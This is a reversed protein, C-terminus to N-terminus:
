GVTTPSVPAADTAPIYKDATAQVRANAAEVTNKAVPVSAVPQGAVPAESTAPPVSATVPPSSGTTAELPAGNTMAGVAAQLEADADNLAKVMDNVQQIRGAVRTAADQMSSGAKGATDLAEKAQKVIEALGKIQASMNRWHERNVEETANIM